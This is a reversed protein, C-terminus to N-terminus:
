GSEERLTFIKEYGRNSFELMARPTRRKTLLDLIKNGLFLVMGCDMFSVITAKQSSTIIHVPHFPNQVLLYLKPLLVNWGEDQKSDRDRSFM